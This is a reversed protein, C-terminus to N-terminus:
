MKQQTAASAPQAMQAYKTSLAGAESAKEVYYEYLNRASDAPTPYKASLSPTIPRRRAWEKEEDAAQKLYYSQLSGYSNALAQYQEPTHADRAMQKLQAKSVHDGDGASAVARQASGAGILVLGVISAAIFRGKIM